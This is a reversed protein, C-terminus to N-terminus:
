FVLFNGLFANSQQSKEIWDPTVVYKAVSIGCLFKVTRIIQFCLCLYDLVVLFILSYVAVKHIIKTLKWPIDRSKLQSIFRALIGLASGFLGSVTGFPWFPINM